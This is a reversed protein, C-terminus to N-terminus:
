KDEKYDQYWDLAVQGYKGLAAFSYDLVYDSYQKKYKKAENLYKNAQNFYNDAQLDYKNKIQNANTQAYNLADRYIMKNTQSMMDLNSASNRAQIKGLEQLGSIKELRANEIGLQKQRLAENEAIKANNLAIQTRYALNEKDSNFAGLISTTSNVLGAGKLVNSILGSSSNFVGASPTCM